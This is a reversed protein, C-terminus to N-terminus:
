IICFGGSFVRVRIKNRHRTRIERGYFLLIIAHGCNRDNNDNDNDNNNNNDKSLGVRRKSELARNFPLFGFNCVNYVNYVDHSANQKNRKLQKLLVITKNKRRFM